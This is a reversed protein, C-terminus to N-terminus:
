NKAVRPCKGQELTQFAQDGPVTELIKYLDWEGKSEAPTKVQALYFDHVMQGDARLRGNRAFADTVPMERMRDMVAKASDTGAAKVAKLYHTAASYVGAQHMTPMKGARELFRRAFARSEEDRDWYFGTTLIMGQAANLGLGHVDRLNLLLALLTQGGAQLGFEAAQKIAAQTDGGANALAVVKAKSGQAQLLFSAFDATNIPHRVHGVVTGGAATMAATADRELAQGFAYDATLFFWSNDGRKVMAKGAVTSLAYTNYTWQATNNSCAPGTIDSAGAGSLLLIRDQEEAIKQVALAISSVPVDLIADVGEREYWSRAMTAGIDPKNQHDGAVVTVPRGLVTGGFDDVAMQAAIVSGPGVGESFISTMDTLVGLKVTDGSAQAMAAGPLTVITGAAVTGAALTLALLSGAIGKGASGCKMGTRKM